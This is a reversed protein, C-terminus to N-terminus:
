IEKHNWLNYFEKLSQESAFIKEPDLQISNFILREYNKFRLVLKSIIRNPSEESTDILVFELEWVYAEIVKNNILTFVTKNDKFAQIIEQETM